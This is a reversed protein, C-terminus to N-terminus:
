LRSRHHLTNCRGEEGRRRHDMTNLVGIYSLKLLTWELNPTSYKQLAVVGHFVAGLGIFTLEYAKFMLLTVTRGVMPGLLLRGVGGVNRFVRYAVGAVGAAAAL